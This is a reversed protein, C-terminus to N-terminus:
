SLNNIIDSVNDRYGTMVKGTKKSILTPFGQFDGYMQKLNDVMPANSDVVSVADLCNNQELM